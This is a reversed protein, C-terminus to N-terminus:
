RRTLPKKTKVLQKVPNKPPGPVTEAKASGLYNENL